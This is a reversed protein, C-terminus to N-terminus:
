SLIDAHDDGLDCLYQSNEHVYNIRKAKFLDKLSSAGNIIHYTKKDGNGGLLSFNVKFTMERKKYKHIYENLFDNLMQNQVDTPLGKFEQLIDKTEEYHNKAAYEQAKNKIWNIGFKQDETEPTEELM